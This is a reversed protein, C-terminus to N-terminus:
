TYPCRTIVDLGHSDLGGTPILNFKCASKNIDNLRKILTEGEYSQYYGEYFCARDKGSKTFNEFLDTYFNEVSTDAKKANTRAPHAVCMYGYDLSSIFEVADEFSSFPELMNDLSPHSKDYITKAKSILNVISNPIDPLYRNLYKELAKKYIKYYPESSKFLYKFKKIPKDYTFDADPCYYNLLIKGATYKKLPYAVEDQGKSVMEHVLAAEDLNFNFGLEESLEENLKCITEKALKLKLDSKNKLYENLKKDFPNIGYVLLHVAVPEKQNKFNIGVTSIELGLVVKLKKYKEPNSSLIELAEKSGDITDHNTIGLLFFGNKDAINNAYNLINEISSLGDSNKTHCHLNAVFEGNELYRLDHTDLVLKDKREGPMYCKETFKICYQKLEEDSIVSNLCDINIIGLGEALTKKYDYTRDM